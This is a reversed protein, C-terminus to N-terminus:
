IHRRLMLPSAHLVAEVPRQGACRVADDIDERARGNVLLLARMCACLTDGGQEPLCCTLMSRLALWMSSHTLSKSHKAQM